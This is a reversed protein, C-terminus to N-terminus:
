YKGLDKYREDLRARLSEVEGRDELLRMQGGEQAFERVSDLDSRLNEIEIGLISVIDSLLRSLEEIHKGLKLSNAEKIDADIQIVLQTNADRIARLKNRLWVDRIPLLDSDRISKLEGLKSKAIDWDTRIEVWSVDKGELRTGVRVAYENALVVPTGFRNVQGLEDAIRGMPALKIRVADLMESRADGVAKELDERKIKDGDNKDKPWFLDVLSAVGPLATDIVDKVVTGIAVGTPTADQGFAPVALLVMAGLVLCSFVSAPRM